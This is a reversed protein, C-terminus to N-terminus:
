RLKTKHSKLRTTIIDPHDFGDEPIMEQPIWVHLHLVQIFQQVLPRQSAFVGDNMRLRRPTPEQTLHFLHAISRSLWHNVRDLCRSLNHADMQARKDGGPIIHFGQQIGKAAGRLFIMPLIEQQLLGQLLCAVHRGERSRLHFLESSGHPSLIIWCHVM